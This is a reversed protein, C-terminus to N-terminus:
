PRPENREVSILMGLWIALGGGVLPGLPHYIMWCGSVVSGIGGFFLAKELVAPTQKRCVATFSALALRAGSAVRSARRFRPKQAPRKPAPDLAAFPNPEGSL